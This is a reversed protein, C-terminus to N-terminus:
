QERARGRQTDKRDNEEEVVDKEFVFFGLSNKKKFRKSFKIM